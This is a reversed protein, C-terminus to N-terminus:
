FWQEVSKRFTADAVRRPCGAGLDGPDTGLWPPSVGLASVADGISEEDSMDSMM